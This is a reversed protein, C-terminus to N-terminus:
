KRAGEAEGYTRVSDFSKQSNRNPACCVRQGGLRLPLATYNIWLHLQDVHQVCVFRCVNRVCVHILMVARPPGRRNAPSGIRLRSAGNSPTRACLSCIIDSIQRMFEAIRVECTVPSSSIWTPVISM